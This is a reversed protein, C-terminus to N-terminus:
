AFRDRRSQMLEPRADALSDLFWMAMSMSRILNWGWTTSSGLRLVQTENKVGAAEIKNVGGLTMLVSTSGDPMAASGFEADALKDRMQDHTLGRTGGNRQIMVLLYNSDKTLAVVQRGCKPDDNYQKSESYRKNTNDAKKSSLLLPVLGGIGATCSTSPEGLAISWRPTNGATMCLSAAGQKITGQLFLGTSADVVNGFITPKPDNTLAGWGTPIYWSGNTVLRVRPNGTLFTKITDTMEEKKTRHIIRM